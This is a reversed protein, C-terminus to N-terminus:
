YCSFLCSPMNINSSVRHQQLLSGFELQCSCYCIQITHGSESPCQLQLRVSCQGAWSQILREGMLWESQCPSCPYSVNCDPHEQLWPRLCGGRGGILYSGRSTPPPSIPFYFCLFILWLWAFLVRAFQGLLSNVCLPFRFFSWPYM